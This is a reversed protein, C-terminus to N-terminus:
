ALIAPMEKSLSGRQNIASGLLAFGLLRGDPSEFRAEFGGDESTKTKWEGIAEKSPPSVVTPLSPTKVNVPMAPYALDIEQGNLNSALARSAIMIPMVYPLILGEVEACDGISYVNKASTELKRNVRIGLGTSIGAQKALELRPRLGVASLIVESNISQSNALALQLYRGNKVISQVTTEFHWRIGIESLKKQLVEAAYDPLLRGLPHFALDIVDVEYGALALDNAFECGILGAGLIAISKRGIITQRFADYAELNNVTLVEHAGNGQIPLRIQDSGLALVLKQYELLGKNTFLTQANTDISLVETESLIHIGLQTAMDEKSSSILQKAQKNNALANSLMPKSYFYGPERTVLTIPVTQNLKRLERITTFGALGSGIVVIPLEPILTNKEM